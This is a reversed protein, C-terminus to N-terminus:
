ISETENVAWGDWGLGWGGWVRAAKVTGGEARM